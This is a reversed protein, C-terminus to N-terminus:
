IYHYLVMGDTGGGDNGGSLGVPGIAPGTELFWAMM